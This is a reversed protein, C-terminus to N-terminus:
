RRLRRQTTIAGALAREDGDRRGVLDAGDRTTCFPPRTIAADCYAPEASKLSAKASTVGNQASSANNQAATLGAEAQAVGAEAAAKDAASPADDLKDRNAEAAALQAAAASVGQEAAARDAASAGDVLDDYDNQAKTAAAQAAALAQDAAALDAAENGALLDDLRLQASKQNAQASAVANALDESELSALVDGQAVADGVKVNVKDVKGSAQFVLNSNLQAEAVGSIILTQNITAKTVTIDETSRTLTTSDDKFYFFYLLAAIVVGLM